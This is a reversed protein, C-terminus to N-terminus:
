PIMACRRKWAFRPFARRRMLKHIMVTKCNHYWLRLRLADANITDNRMHTKRGAPPFTRVRMLEHIIVVCHNNYWLGSPAITYNAMRTKRAVRPFIRVAM